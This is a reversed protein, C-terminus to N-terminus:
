NTKMDTNRRFGMDVKLNDEKYVRKNLFVLKKAEEEEVVDEFDRTHSIEGKEKAM